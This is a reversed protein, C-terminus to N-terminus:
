PNFSLSKALHEIIEKAMAEKSRERLTGYSISYFLKFDKQNPNIHDTPLAWGVNSVSTSYRKPHANGVSVMISKTYYINCTTLIARYPCNM